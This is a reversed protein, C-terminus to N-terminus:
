RDVKVGQELAANFHVRQASQLGDTAVAPTWHASKDHLGDFDMPIHRSIVNEFKVFRDSTPYFCAEPRM